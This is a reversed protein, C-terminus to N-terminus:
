AEDDIALGKENHFELFDDINKAIRLIEENPIKRILDGTEKDVIEIVTRDSEEDKTFSIDAGRVYFESKELLERLHEQESVIHQLTKEGDKKEQRLKQKKEQLQEKQAQEASLNPVADTTKGITGEAHQIGDM